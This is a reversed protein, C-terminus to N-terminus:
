PQPFKIQCFILSGKSLSPYLKISTGNRLEIIYSVIKLVAIEDCHFWISKMNKEIGNDIRRKWSEFTDQQM